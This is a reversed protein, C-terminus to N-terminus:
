PGELRRPPRGAAGNRHEADRCAPILHVGRAAPLSRDQGETSPERLHRQWPACAIILSPPWPSGTFSRRGTRTRGRGCPTRSHRPRNGAPRSRRVGRPDGVDSFGERRLVHHDGLDADPSVEDRRVVRHPLRLRSRAASSDRRRRRPRRASRRSSYRSTDRRSRSRAAGSSGRRRPTRRNRPSPAHASRRPSASARLTRARSSAICGAPCRRCSDDVQDARDVTRGEGRMEVRDIEDQGRPLIPVLPASIRSHKSFSPRKMTLQWALSM